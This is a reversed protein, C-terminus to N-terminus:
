LEIMEKAPEIGTVSLGQEYLVNCLAGTGCGIDIINEYNSLDLQNKINNFINTFNKVQINFFLGYISSIINFLSDNRRM